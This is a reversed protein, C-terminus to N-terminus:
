RVAWPMLDPWWTLGAVFGVVVLAVFIVVTLM